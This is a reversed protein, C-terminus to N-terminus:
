VKVSNQTDVYRYQKSAERLSFVIDNSNDIKSDKNLLGSVSAEEAPARSVVASVSVSLFVSAQDTPAEPM